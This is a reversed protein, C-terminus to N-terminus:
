GPNLESDKLPDSEGLSASDEVGDSEKMEKSDSLKKRGDGGVELSEDELLAVEGAVSVDM